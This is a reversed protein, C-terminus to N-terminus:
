QIDKKIREFEEKSVEGRAYRKKLVELANGDRRIETPRDYYQWPFRADGRGFILYLAALFVFIMLIPFIWMGGGWFYGYCM